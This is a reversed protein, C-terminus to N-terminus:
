WPAAVLLLQTDVVLIKHFVVRDSVICGCHSTRIVHDTHLFATMRSVVGREFTSNCFLENLWITLVLVLSLKDVRVFEFVPIVGITATPGNWHVTSVTSLSIFPFKQDYLAFSEFLVILCLVEFDLRLHFKCIRLSLAYAVGQISKHFVLDVLIEKFSRM